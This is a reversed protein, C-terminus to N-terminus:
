FTWWASFAGKIYFNWDTVTQNRPGLYHLPPFAQKQEYNWVNWSLIGQSWQTQPQQLSLIASHYPLNVSQRGWLTRFASLCVFLLLTNYLKWIHVGLLERGVLLCKYWYDVSLRLAQMILDSKLLVILGPGFWSCMFKSSDKLNM